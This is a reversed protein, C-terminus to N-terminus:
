RQSHCKLIGFVSNRFNIKIVWMQSLLMEVVSMHFISLDTFIRLDNSNERLVCLQCYQYKQVVEFPFLNTITVLQIFKSAFKSKVHYKLGFYIHRVVTDVKIKM